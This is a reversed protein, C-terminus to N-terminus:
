NSVIFADFMVPEDNEDYVQEEYGDLKFLEEVDAYTAETYIEYFDNWVYVDLEPDVKEIIEKLQKVKM